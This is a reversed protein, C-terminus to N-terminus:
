RVIRVYPANVISFIATNAGISLALTVIVAATFGLNRVIQRWGITRDLKAWPSVACTEGATTVEQIADRRKNVAM